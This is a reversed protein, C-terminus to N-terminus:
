LRRYVCEPVPFTRDELVAGLLEVNWSLLIEKARVAAERRTRNATVVLVAGDCRQCLLPARETINAGLVLYDFVTRKPTKSESEAEFRDLSIEWLNAALQVPSQRDSSTGADQPDTNARDAAAASNGDVILVSARSIEAVARGVQECFIAISTARDASAFLIHARRVPSFFLQQVLAILPTPSSEASSTDRAPPPAVIHRRLDTARDLTQRWAETALNM